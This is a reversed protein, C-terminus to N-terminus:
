MYNGSKLKKHKSRSINIIIFVERCLQLRNETHCKNPIPKVPKCARWKSYSQINLIIMSTKRFEAMSYQYALIKLYCVPLGCYCTASNQFVLIWGYIFFVLFGCNEFRWLNFWGYQTTETYSTLSKRKIYIQDIYTSYKYTKM